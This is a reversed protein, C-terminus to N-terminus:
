KVWGVFSTKVGNLEGIIQWCGPTPFDIVVELLSKLNQEFVLATSSASGTQSPNWLNVISIKLPPKEDAKDLGDYAWLSYFGHGRQGFNDGWVSTIPIRTFLKASDYANRVYSCPRRM